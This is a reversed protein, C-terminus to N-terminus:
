RLVASTQLASARLREIEIAQSDSAKLLMKDIAHLIESESANWPLYPMKMRACLRGVKHPDGIGIFPKGALAALVLGHFRASIVWDYNGVQAAMEDFSLGSLFNQASLISEGNFDQVYATETQPQFLMGDVNMKKEERLIRGAIAFLTRGSSPCPFRPILLAAAGQNGYREHAPAGAARAFVPDATIAISAAPVGIESLIQKSAEDRVTITVSSSSLLARTLSRLFTGNLSEVGMAYLVVPCQLVRAFGVLSLYYILSRDSTKNQLLGGGGLILVDNRWLAAIIALPNWRSVARIQHHSQTSEPDASLVTVDLTSYRTKLQSVISSLILEDGLNGFGYYGAILVKM